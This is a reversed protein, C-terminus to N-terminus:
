DHNVIYEPSRYFGYAARIRQVNAFPPSFQGYGDRILIPTMPVFGDGMDFEFVVAQPKVYDALTFYVGTTNDVSPLADDITIGNMREDYDGRNLARFALSPDTPMEDLLVSDTENVAVAVGCMDGDRMVAVSAQAKIPRLEPDDGASWVERTYQAIKADRCRRATDLNMGVFSYNKAAYRTLRYAYVNEGVSEVDVRYRVSLARDTIKNADGWSKLLAM